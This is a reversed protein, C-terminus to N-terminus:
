FKPIVIPERIEVPIKNLKVLPRSGLVLKLMTARSLKTKPMEMKRITFSGTSM